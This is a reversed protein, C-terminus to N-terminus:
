FQPMMSMPQRALFHMVAGHAPRLKLPKRPQLSWIKYLLVCQGFLYLNSNYVAASKDLRRFSQLLVVILKWVMKSQNNLFNLFFPSLRCILAFPLYITYESALVIFFKYLSSFYNNAVKSEYWLDCQRSTKLCFRLASWIDGSILVPTLTQLFFPLHKSM